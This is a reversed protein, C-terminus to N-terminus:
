SSAVVTLRGTVDDYSLNFGSPPNAFDNSRSGYTMIPFADGTTPIYGNVLTLALTGDLNATGGVNLQGFLATDPTGGLQIELTAGQGQNYNGTVTFVAGQGIILTATNSFTGATTFAASNLLALTGGNASLNAINTFVPSTGDFIITANNTTLNVGSNLNLTSSGFVKWTGATLTTGSVQSTNSPALTGSDVEVTGTNSFPLNLASTGSGASKKFLGANAFAASSGRIGANSRIDWIGNATITVHNSASLFLGGAGSEIVTGDNTVPGNGNLNLEDSNALTMAGANTLSADSEVTLIGGLWQFLGPTFNFTAGPSFSTHVIHLIGDALKVTGDGSGSVAGTYSIGGGGLDLVAGAAVTIMAGNITSNVPKFQFTGSEIDLTTGGTYKTTIASIGAGASKKITGASVITASSGRIGCNAQFDLVAGAANTLTNTSPMFLGGAGSLAILGNNIVAGGGNLNVESSDSLTLTGANTLTANADVTLIGNIWQFMGPPLNFTAGSYETTIVIYVVGSVDIKVTGSGSGTFSGTYSGGYLDVFAGSAVSFAGGTITSPLTPSMRFTGQVGEVNLSGQFITRVASVGTGASKRITGSNIFIATSGSVDSNAQFDYVGNGTNNLTTALPMFLGGAGSQIMTGNNTVPGGGNLVVQSSNALTLTGMNILSADAAVTLIGGKWQFLGAAFAFTAGGSGMNNVINLIGGDFLVTGSGSGSFDGSYKGATLHLVATGEVTFTGGRLLDNPNPIDFTGSTIYFTGDNNNLDVRINATHDGATKSVTGFNNFVGASGQNYSIGTDGRFEYSGMNNLTVGSATVKLDASGGQIISENNTLIGGGDVFVFLTNSLTLTGNNILGGAGVILTGGSWESIGGITMPGTGGFSGSALTLGGSLILTASVTVSGSWSTDIDVKNIIFNADVIATTRTATQDFYATDVVGPVGGNWNATNSWNNDAAGTWIKVDFLTREELMELTPRFRPPVSSRFGAGNRRTQGAASALRRWLTLLM